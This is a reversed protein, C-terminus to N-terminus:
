AREIQALLTLPLSSGFWGVINNNRTIMSPMNRVPAQM